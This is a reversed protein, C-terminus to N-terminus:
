AWDIEGSIETGVAIPRDLVHVIEGDDRERVEIVRADGIAGTDFPQGGSTPYFATRDLVVECRDDHADSAVVMATFTRASSDTYYLRVASMFRTGGQDLSGRRGSGRIGKRAPSLQRM